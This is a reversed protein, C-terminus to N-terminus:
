AQFDGGASVIRLTPRVVVDISDSATVRFSISMGWRVSHAKPLTFTNDKDIGGAHKGWPTASLHFEHIRSPGDFIHVQRLFASDSEFLLYFSRVTARVGDVIVPTPIPIHLWSERDPIFELDTGWGMHRISKFNEPNEVTVANGHAWSAYMAM